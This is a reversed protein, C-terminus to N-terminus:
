CLWFPWSNPSFRLWSAMKHQTTGNSFIKRMKYARLALITYSPWFPRWPNPLLEVLRSDIQILDPVTHALHPASGPLNQVRDACYLCNSLPRKELFFISFCNVFNGPRAVEPRWLEAIIVFASFKRGFPGGLPHRTEMKVTLILETKGQSTRQTGSLYRDLNEAITSPWRPRRESDHRLLLCVSTPTAVTRRQTLLYTFLQTM